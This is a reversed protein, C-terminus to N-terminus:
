DVSKNPNILRIFKAVEDQSAIQVTRYGGKSVSIDLDECMERFDHLLPTSANKFQIVKYGDYKREYITGDTDLLGRICAKKYKRDQKIWEHVSVQNEKKDGSVMGANKLEEVLDKSYIYLNVVNKEEPAYREPSRGTFSEFLAQAREIIDLEEKHLTIKVKYGTVHKGEMDIEHFDRIHGDGLLVGIFEAM